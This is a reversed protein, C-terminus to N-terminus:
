RVGAAPWRRQGDRRRLVAAAYGGWHGRQLQGRGKKDAASSEILKKSFDAVAVCRERLYQADAVLAADEKETMKGAAKYAKGYDGKEFAKVAGNLSKHLTKGVRTDLVGELLEQIRSENPMGDSVVKGTADILYTRPITLGGPNSYRGVTERSPDSALWYLGGRDDTVAGKITGISESSIAIVRLGKDFYKEHLKQLHGVQQM